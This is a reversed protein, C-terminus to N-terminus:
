YGGSKSAGGAGGTGPQGGPPGGITQGGTPGGGGTQGGGLADGRITNQTEEQDALKDTGIAFGAAILKKLVAWARKWEENVKIESSTITVNEQPKDFESRYITVFKNNGAKDWQYLPQIFVFDGLDNTAWSELDPRGLGIPGDIGIKDGYVFSNDFQRSQYINFLYSSLAAVPNQTAGLVAASILVDELYRLRTNDTLFHSMEKRSKKRHKEFLAVIQELHKKSYQAAGFSYSNNDLIIHPKVKSDDGSFDYATVTGIGRCKQKLYYEFMRTYKNSGIISELRKIAGLYLADHVIGFGKPLITHTGDEWFFTVNGKLPYKKELQEPSLKANIKKYDPTIIARAEEPTLYDILTRPNALTSGEITITNPLTGHGYKYAVMDNETAVVEYLTGDRSDIKRSIEPTIEYGARHHLHALFQEYTDPPIQNREDLSLMKSKHYFFLNNQPDGYKIATSCALLPSLAVATSTTKLFDRRSINNM